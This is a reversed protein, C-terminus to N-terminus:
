TRLKLKGDTGDLWRGESRAQNISIIVRSVAIM